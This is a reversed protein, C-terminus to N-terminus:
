DNREDVGGVGKTIGLVQKAYEDVLQDIRVQSYGLDALLRNREATDMSYLGRSAFHNLYKAATREKTTYDEAGFILQASRGHPDTM